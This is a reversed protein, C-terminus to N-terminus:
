EDDFEWLGGLFDMHPSDDDVHMLDAHWTADYAPTGRDCARCFILADYDTLGRRPRDYTISM